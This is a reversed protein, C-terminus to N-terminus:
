KSTSQIYSLLNNMMEERSRLEKELRQKEIELDHIKVKMDDVGESKTPDMQNM